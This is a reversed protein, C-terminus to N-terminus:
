SSTSTPSRQSMGPMISRCLWMAPEPPSFSVTKWALGPTRMEFLTSGALRLRRRLMAAPTVVTSKMGPEPEFTPPTPTSIM